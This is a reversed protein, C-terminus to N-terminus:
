SAKSDDMGSDDHARTYPELSPPGLQALTAHSHQLGCSQWMGDHQVWALWGSVGGAQGKGGATSLWFRKAMNQRAAMSASRARGKM